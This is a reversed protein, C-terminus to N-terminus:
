DFSLTCDKWILSTFSDRGPFDCKLSREHVVEHKKLQYKSFFSKECVGCEFFKSGSHILLHRRLHDARIYTKNCGEVPCGHPRTTLSSESDSNDTSDGM